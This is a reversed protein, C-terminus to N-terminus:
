NPSINRESLQLTLRKGKKKLLGNMSCFLQLILRKLSNKKTITRNKPEQQISLERIVALANNYYFYEASFSTGGISNKIAELVECYQEDFDKARVDITLKGLFKSLDDDSLGLNIHHYHTVKSSGKGQSYTLFNEKLFNVDIGGDLKEQGSAYHGKISYSIDPKVGSM